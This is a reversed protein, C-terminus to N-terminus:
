IRQADRYDEVDLERLGRLEARTLMARRGEAIGRDLWHRIAAYDDLHIVDAHLARYHRRPLTPTRAGRARSLDALVAGRPTGAPM